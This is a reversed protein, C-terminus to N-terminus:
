AFSSSNGAKRAVTDFTESKKPPRGRPSAVRARLTQAVAWLESPLFDKRCANEAYEGAVLDDLDVVHVPVTKWGLLKAAELRRRGAVLRGRRDVVVPHLLGVAALSDALAQVDGLGRRHRTGVKIASIRRSDPM